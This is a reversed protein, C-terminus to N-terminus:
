SQSTWEHRLLGYLYMDHRQGDRQLFERFAGEHRFGTKELLAISRANYSFATAQVRHLNLEDFAFTLALQTAEHGYGQGRHAPDGVGLGLGCVGHQWDIGDLELYGVLEDGQLSRVAFIFINKDQRLKEIWSKVEAETKPCAPRSDFLRMFETDQHWRTMAEVDSDTLAALRVKEGQLLKSPM